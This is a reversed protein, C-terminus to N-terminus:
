RESRDFGGVRVSGVFAQWPAIGVRLLPGAPDKSDRVFVATPMAAVEVCAGDGASRASKKWTVDAFDVPLVLGSGSELAHTLLGRV